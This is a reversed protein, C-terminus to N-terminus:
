APCGRTLPVDKQPNPRVNWNLHQRASVQMDIVTIDLFKTGGNKKLEKLTLLGGFSGGIIVLSKRESPPPPPAEKRACLCSSVAGM